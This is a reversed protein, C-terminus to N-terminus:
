ASRNFSGVSFSEWLHVGEVSALLEAFDFEVVHVGILGVWFDSGDEGCDIRWVEFGNCEESLVRIDIEIEGRVLIPSPDVLQQCHEPLVHCLLILPFQLDHEISPLCGDFVLIRPLPPPVKQRIEGLNSRDREPAHTGRRM